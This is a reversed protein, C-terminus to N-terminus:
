SNSQMHHARSVQIDLRPGTMPRAGQWLLGASDFAARKGGLHQVSSKTYGSGPNIGRHGGM